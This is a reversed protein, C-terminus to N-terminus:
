DYILFCYDVEGELFVVLKGCLFYIGEDIIKIVNVFFEWVLGCGVGDEGEFCVRLNVNLKIKFNKYIGMIDGWLENIGDM